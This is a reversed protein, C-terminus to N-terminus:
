FLPNKSSDASQTRAAATGRRMWNKCFIAVVFPLKKCHEFVVAKLYAVEYGTPNKKNYAQSLRQSLVFM